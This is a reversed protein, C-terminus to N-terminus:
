PEQSPPAWPGSRDIAASIFWAVRRAADQTVGERYTARYRVADAGGDYSPVDRPQLTPGTLAGGPPIDWGPTADGYAHRFGGPGFADVLRACAGPRDTADTAPHLLLLPARDEVAEPVPLAPIAACHPYLAAVPVTGSWALAARGGDGFGLVGIPLVRFRADGMVQQRAVALVAEVDGPHRPGDGGVDIEITAIGHALLAEVYPTARGDQGVVDPVMIVVGRAGAGFARTPMTLLAPAFPHPLEVIEGPPGRDSLEGLGVLGAVSAALLINSRLM